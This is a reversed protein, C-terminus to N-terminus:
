RPNISSRADRTTPRSTVIPAIPTERKGPTASRRSPSAIAPAGSSLPVSRREASVTFSSAANSGRRRPRRSTPAMSSSFGRNWRTRSSLPEQFTTRSMSSRGAPCPSEPEGRCSWGDRKAMSRMSSDSARMAISSRDAEGAILRTRSGTSPEISSPEAVRSCASSRPSRSRPLTFTANGDAPPGRSTAISTAVRKSTAVSRPASLIRMAASATSRSPVSSSSSPITSFSSGADRRTSRM